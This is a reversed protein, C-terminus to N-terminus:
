EIEKSKNKYQSIFEKLCKYSKKDLMKEIKNKEEKTECLLKSPLVRPLEVCNRSTLQKAMYRGLKELDKKKVFQKALNHLKKRAHDPIKLTKLSIMSVKDFEEIEEASLSQSEAIKDFKFGRGSIGRKGEIRPIGLKILKIFGNIKM